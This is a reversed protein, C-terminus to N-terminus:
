KGMEGVALKVDKTEHAPIDAAELQKLTVSKRGAMLAILEAQRLLYFKWQALDLPDVEEHTEATFYCLAYIDANFTPEKGWTNTESDWSITPKLRVTPVSLKSQAWAQVKSMTKVEITTGDVLKLDYADWPIRPEKDIGLLVALIYEALVGRTTNQLTDSYAWQWFDGVSRKTGRLPTDPPLKQIKKPHLM